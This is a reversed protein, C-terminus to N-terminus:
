KRCNKLILLFGKYIEKACSGKEKVFCYGRPYGIECNDSLIWDKLKGSINRRRTWSAPITVRQTFDSPYCHLEHRALSLAENNSVVISLSLSLSIENSVCGCVSVRQLERGRSPHNCRPSFAIQFLACKGTQREEELNLPENGFTLVRFYRGSILNVGLFAGEVEGKRVVRGRGRNLWERQEDDCGCGGVRWRSREERRTQSRAGVKSGGHWFVRNSSSLSPSDRSCKM